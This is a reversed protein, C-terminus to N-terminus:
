NEEWKYSPIDDITQSKLLIVLIVRIYFYCVALVPGIVILTLLYPIFALVMVLNLVKKLIIWPSFLIKGVLTLNSTDVPDLVFNKWVPYDYSDEVNDLYKERASVTLTSILISIFIIAEM